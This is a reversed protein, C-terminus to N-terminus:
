ARLVANLVSNIEEINGSGTGFSSLSVYFM